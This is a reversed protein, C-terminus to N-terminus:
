GALQKQPTPRDNNNGTILGSLGDVVDDLNGGKVILDGLKDYTKVM